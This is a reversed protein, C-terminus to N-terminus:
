LCQNKKYYPKYTPNVYAYIFIEDLNINTGYMNIFINNNVFHNSLLYFSLFARLLLFSCRVWKIMIQAYNWVFTCVRLEPLTMIKRSPLKANKNARVVEPDLQSFRKHCSCFFLFTIVSNSCCVAVSSVLNKVFHVLFSLLFPTSNWHCYSAVQGNIARRVVVWRQIIQWPM